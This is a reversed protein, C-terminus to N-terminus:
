FNYESEGKVHPSLELQQELPSSFVTDLKRNRDQKAGAIRTIGKKANNRCIPLASYLERIDSNARMFEYWYHKSFTNENIMYSLNDNDNQYMGRLTALAEERLLEFSRYPLSQLIVIM